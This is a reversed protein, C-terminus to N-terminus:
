QKEEMLASVDANLTLTALEKELLARASRASMGFIRALDDNAMALYAKAEAAQQAYDRSKM